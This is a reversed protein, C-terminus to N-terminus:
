EIIKINANMADCLTELDKKAEEYTDFGRRVQQTWTKDNEFKRIQWRYTRPERVTPIIKGYVIKSKLRFLKRIM